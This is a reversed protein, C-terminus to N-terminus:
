LIFSIPASTGSNNGSRRRSNEWTADDAHLVLCTNYFPRAQDAPKLASIRLCDSSHWRGLKAASDINELFEELPIESEADSWRSVLLIPPLDKHVTPFGTSLREKLRGREAKSEAFQAQLSCDKSEQM